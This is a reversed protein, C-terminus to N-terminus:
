VNVIAAARSRAEAGPIAPLVQQLFLMARDGRWGCNDGVLVVERVGTVRDVALYSTTSFREGEVCSHHFHELLERAFCVIARKNDSQETYAFM